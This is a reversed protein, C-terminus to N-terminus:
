MRFNWTYGGMQTLRLQFAESALVLLFRKVQETELAKNDILLDYQEECIPIFDLGYIKAAAYIGLGVDASGAAIIAAVGTHTYEEREYDIVESLHINEKKLLCDCLIRTGSGKQRNVYKGKQHAIGAWDRINKPNGHPVM